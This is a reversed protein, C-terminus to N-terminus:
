TSAIGVGPSMDEILENPDRFTAVGVKLKSILGSLQSKLIEEFYDEDVSGDELHPINVHRKYIYNDSTRAYVVEVSTDSPEYDSVTYTIDLVPQTKTTDTTM